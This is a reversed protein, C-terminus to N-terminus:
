VSNRDRNPTRCDSEMKRISHNYMDSTYSPHRMANEEDSDVDHDHDHRLGIGTMGASMARDPWKLENSMALSNSRRSWETEQTTIPMKNKSFRRAIITFFPRIALASAAFLSLGHEIVTWVLSELWWTIDQSHDPSNFAKIYVGLKMGAAVAALLGISFLSIVVWKLNGTVKIGWLIVIPILVHAVNYVVYMAEQVYNTPECVREGFDFPSILQCGLGLVLTSIITWVVCVVIDSILIIRVFLRQDLRYLVLAVSIKVTGSIIYCVITKATHFEKWCDTGFGCSISRLALGVWIM